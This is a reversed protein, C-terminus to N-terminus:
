FGQLFDSTATYINVSTTPRWGDLPVEAFPFHETMRAEISRTAPAPYGDLTALAVEEAVGIPDDDFALEPVPSPSPKCHWSQGIAQVGTLPLLISM